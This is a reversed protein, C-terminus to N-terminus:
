NKTLRESITSATSSDNPVLGFALAMSNTDQPYVTTDTNNDKFAGYVSDYFHKVANEKLDEARSLYKASLNSESMWTALDAGTTLTKYLVMNAESSYGQPNLRGWDGTGTVNLLGLPELVKAYIFEMAKKYGNWNHQLFEMNGTYLVYNYLGIMAWYHYTDGGYALVPLGAFPLEGDSM